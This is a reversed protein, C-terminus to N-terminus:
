QSSRNAFFALTDRLHEAWYSWKHAGPFEEYIHEVGLKGLSTHLDRNGELLADEVGCDFRIPPLSDRNKTMWYMIDWENPHELRFPLPRQTVLRKIDEMRTVSSHASIGKLRHAYKAGLRLAGYGGMSLGAIFVDSSESLSPVESTVCGVVDDVIWAEYDTDDHPLYGSGQAWLGDSPMALVMPPIDGDAIMAAATLHAGGKMAWAWHSCYVGHMLVVLPLDKLGERDPVFLAVDGRGGLAPSQFTLFRLHAPEFQRDSWEIKGYDSM